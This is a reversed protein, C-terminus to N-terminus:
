VEERVKEVEVAVEKPTNNMSFYAGRYQLHGYDGVMNNPKLAGPLVDNQTAGDPFQYGEWAHYCILTGPQVAPSIKAWLTFEGVDNYVRIQDNDSVGRARADAESLYAVPSGRQL